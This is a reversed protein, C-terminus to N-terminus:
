VETPPAQSPPPPAALGPTPTSYFGRSPASVFGCAIAAITLARTPSVAPGHGTFLCNGHTSTKPAKAPAGFDSAALLPGHGTCIVLPLAGGVERSAMFGQPVLVQVFLALAALAAGLGGWVGRNRRVGTM